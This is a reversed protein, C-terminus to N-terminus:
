SPPRGSPQRRSFRGLGPRFAVLAWLFFALLRGQQLLGLKSKGKARAAFTIPVEVVPLRHKMAILVCEPQFEFHRGRSEGVVHQALRRSYVRFSTTTEHPTGLVLRFVRNALRSAKAQLGSHATGGGQAYRSAQVLDAGTEVSAELLRPVDRPDHSFDADMTLVHGCGDDLAATIGDVLASGLGLKGPRVILSINGYHSGLKRAMTATGDPSADDVVYLRTGSPLPLGQLADVLLPLNGAENYTAIVVGLRDM